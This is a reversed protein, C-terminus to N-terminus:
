FRSIKSGTVDLVACLSVQPYDPQSTMESISDIGFCIIYAANRRDLVALEQKGKLRWILCLTIAVHLAVASTVLLSLLSESSESDM